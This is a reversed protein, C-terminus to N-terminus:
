AYINLREKITSFNEEVLLKGDMFVTNLEDIPVIDDISLGDIFTTVKGAKVVVVRGM